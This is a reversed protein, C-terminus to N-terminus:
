ATEAKPRMRWLQFGRDQIAREIEARPLRFPPEKGAAIVGFTHWPRFQGPLKDGSPDDSFARLEANADSKFLYIRMAMPELHFSDNHKGTKIIEIM